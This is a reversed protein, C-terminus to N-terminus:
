HGALERRQYLQRLCTVMRGAPESGCTAVDTTRLRARSEQRLAAESVIPATFYFQREAVADVFAAEESFREARSLEVDSCIAREVATVASRCDFSPAPARWDPRFYRKLVALPLSIEQPGDSLTGVIGSEFHLMLTNPGLVFSAFNRWLASAGEAIRVKDYVSLRKSLAAVALRSIEQLGAREFIEPLAVQWGDPRLFTLGVRQHYHKERSDESTDVWVSLVEADNRVVQPKVKTVSRKSGSSPHDCITAASRGYTSFQDDIPAVGTRLYSIL